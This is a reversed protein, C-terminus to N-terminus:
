KQHSKRGTPPPRLRRAVRLGRVRTISLPFQNRRRSLRQRAAPQRRQRTEKSERSHLQRASLPPAGRSKSQRAASRAPGSKRIATLITEREPPGSKKPRKSAGDASPHTRIENTMPPGVQRRVREVLACAENTVSVSVSPYKSATTARRQEQQERIM